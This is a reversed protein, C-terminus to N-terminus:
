HDDRMSPGGGHGQDHGQDRPIPGESAQATMSRTMRPPLPDRVSEAPGGPWPIMISEEHAVVRIANERANRMHRVMEAAARDPDRARIAHMVALHEEITATLRGPGRPSLHRIRHVQDDLTGLLTALRRNRTAEIIRMHFQRSTEFARQLNGPRAEERAALLLGELEEADQDSMSVAAMRGALSELPERIQYIENIDAATMQTVFVGKQPVTRVLGEYELQKLAERVPTRSIGLMSALQYESLAEGPTFRLELIEHRISQYADARLLGAM